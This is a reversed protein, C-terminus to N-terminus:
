TMWTRRGDPSMAGGLRQLLKAAINCNANIRGQSGVKLVKPTCPALLTSKNQVSFLVIALPPHLLTGLFSTGVAPKWDRSEKNRGSRRCWGLTPRSKEDSYSALMTALMFLLPALACERFPQQGGSEQRLRWM